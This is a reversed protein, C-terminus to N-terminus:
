LAVITIEGPLTTPLLVWVAMPVTLKFTAVAVDMVTASCAVGPGETMGAVMFMGAPLALPVNVALPLKTEWGVVTVMEVLLEFMEGLGLVPKVTVGKWSVRESEGLRIKAASFPVPVTVSLAGELPAVTPSVCDELGAPTAPRVKGEATVMGVPELLAL